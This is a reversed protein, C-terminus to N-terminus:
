GGSGGPVVVRRPALLALGGEPGPALRQIWFGGAEDPRGMVPSPASLIRLGGSRGAWDIHRHGHLVLIRPALRRLRGLVWHGNVLATGIRDALPAGPRPYEVLHHHMLVLWRAAPETRMAAEAARCQAMGVLGLANTFSFHTEANSDMLVLGLGDPTRPPVLLPFVEGWLRRAAFGARLGGQDMFRALREGRREAALWANLTPGARGTAREVLHVRDGQLRAMAALFRLRRLAGGPAVPLELRSPNARDVINVDHNGPIIVVRDRLGPQRALCEEFAIFEANRGADTIDGTVLVWDLPAAADADALLALARDLRGNGRPGDRGCELRFGHAEGVVHIDSLHAVRWRAEGEPLTGLDRPTGALAEAISWAPAGFTLYAAIVWIGNRIADLVADAGFREVRLSPLPGAWWAIGAAALAIAAGAGLGALRRTAALDRGPLARELALRAAERLATYLPQVLAANLAWFNREVILFAIRGWRWAVLGAAAAFVLAAAALGLRAAEHWAAETLWVVAKPTAGLLLAPLVLLMTAALALKPLSIELLMHTAHGLLSHRSTSSADDELDGDRPDFFTM